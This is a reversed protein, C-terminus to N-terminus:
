ASTQSQQQRARARKWAAMFKEGDYLHIPKGRAWEQAQPTFRGATIVAGQDAKEHHMVGYFDRIVPEGVMGRWRKCQVIWKEGNQAQVVVDVGHDGVAGTRKAQHGLLQYLEVVMQEYETPSLRLLDEVSNLKNAKQQFQGRKWIAVGLRILVLVAGAAFFLVTNLPEPILFSPVSNPAFVLFVRVVALICWVFLMNFLIHRRRQLPSVIILPWCMFVFTAAYSLIDLIPLPPLTLPPV